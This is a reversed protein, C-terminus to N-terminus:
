QHASYTERVTKLILEAILKDDDKLNYIGSHSPDNINPTM